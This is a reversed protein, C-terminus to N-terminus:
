SEFWSAISENLDHSRCGWRKLKEILRSPSPMERPNSEARSYPTGNLYSLALHAIRSEGRVKSTRHSDLDAMSQIAKQRSAESMHTLRGRIKRVEHRIVRSEHALSKVNVRGRIREIRMDTEQKISSNLQIHVELWLLVAIMANVEHSEGKTIPPQGIAPPDHPATM